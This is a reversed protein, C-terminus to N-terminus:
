RIFNTRVKPEPAPPTIGGAKGADICKLLWALNKGLIRMVQMGEEDRMVEDPTNGHVGNWYTSSVVPMQNITFYKNIQDFSTLVAPYFCLIWPPLSCLLGSCPPLATKM